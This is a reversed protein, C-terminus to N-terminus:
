ESWRQSLLIAYQPRPRQELTEGDGTSLIDQSAEGFQRLRLESKRLAGKSGRAYSQRATDLSSSQRARSSAEGRPTKM